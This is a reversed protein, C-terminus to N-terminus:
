QWGASVGARSSCQNENASSGAGFGSAQASGKSSAPEIINLFSQPSLPHFQRDIRFRAFDLNPFNWALFTPRRLPTSSRRALNVRFAKVAAALSCAASTSVSRPAQPRHDLAARLSQRGVPSAFVHRLIVAPPCCGAKKFRRPHLADGALAPIWCWPAVEVTLFSMRVPVAVALLLLSRNKGLM